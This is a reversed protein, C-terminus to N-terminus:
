MLESRKCSALPPMMSMSTSPGRTVAGPALSAEVGFADMGYNAPMLASYHNHIFSKAEIQQHCGEVLSPDKPVHEKGLMTM